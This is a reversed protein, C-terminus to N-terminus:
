MKSRWCSSTDGLSERREIKAQIEWRIRNQRAIPCILKKIVLHYCFMNVAYLPAVWMVERVKSNQQPEPQVARQGKNQILRSAMILPLIWLYKADLKHVQKAELYVQHYKDSVRTYAEKTNEAAFHFLHTYIQCTIRLYIERLSRGLWPFESWTM